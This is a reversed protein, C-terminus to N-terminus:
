GLRIGEFGREVSRKALERMGLCLIARVNYNESIADRTHDVGARFISQGHTSMVRLLLLIM